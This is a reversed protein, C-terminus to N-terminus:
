KKDELKRKKQIFSFNNMMFQNGSSNMQNNNMIPNQQYLGMMTNQQFQNTFPNQQYQGIMSNQQFQGIMPNQQNSNLEEKCDKEYNKSKEKIVEKLANKIIKIENKLSFIEKKNENEKFNIEDKLLKIQNKLCKNETHVNNYDERTMSEFCNKCKIIFKHCDNGHHKELLHAVMEKGCFKCNTIRYACTNFHSEMDNKNNLTNEYYCYKNVCHYKKFECKELHSIYDYYKPNEKCSDNPCKLIIDLFSIKLAKCKSSKFPNTRCMPCFNKLKKISTKLCYDCFLKGCTSCDVPNWVLNQCISCTIENLKEEDIKNVINNTPIGDKPEKIENPLFGNM